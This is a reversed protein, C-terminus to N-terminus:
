VNLEEKKRNIAAYSLAVIVRRFRFVDAGLNRIYDGMKHCQYCLPITCDLALQHNERVMKTSYAYKWHHMEIRGKAFCAACEVPRTGKVEVRIRRYCILFSM